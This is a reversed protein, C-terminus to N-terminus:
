GTPQANNLHERMELTAHYADMADDRDDFKYLNNITCHTDGAVVEDMSQGCVEGFDGSFLIRGSVPLDNCGPMLTALYHEGEGEISLVNDQLVGYGQIDGVKVCARGDQKTTDALMNGLKPKDGATTACAGLVTACALAGIIKLRKM